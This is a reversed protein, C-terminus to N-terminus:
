CVCTYVFMHVCICVPPLVDLFLKYYVLGLFYYLKKNNHYTFRHKWPNLPVM